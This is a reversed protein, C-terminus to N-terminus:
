GLGTSFTRFTLASPRTITQSTVPRTTFSASLQPLTCSSRPLRGAPTYKTRLPPLLTLIIFCYCKAGIEGVIRGQPGSCRSVTRAMSCSSTEQKSRGSRKRLFVGSIHRLHRAAGWRQRPAHTPSSNAPKATSYTGCCPSPSSRETRNVFCQGGEIAPVPSAPAAPCADPCLLGRLPYQGATRLPKAKYCVWHACDARM